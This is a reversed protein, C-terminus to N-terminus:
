RLKRSEATLAFSQVLNAPPIKVTSAAKRRINAVADLAAQAVDPSLTRDRLIKRLLAEEARLAEDKLTTVLQLRV